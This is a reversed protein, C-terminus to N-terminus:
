FNYRYISAFERALKREKTKKVQRRIKEINKEIWEEAEYFFAFDREDRKFQPTHVYRRGNRHIVPHKIHLMEHYVVYELVYRPVRESDLSKSISITQHTSDHHGLIRYTTNPSWTLSPKPIGGAFYIQNLLDFIENLDYHFGVTGSLVKRGRNKRSELSKERIESKKTFEHFFQLANKSVKKRYLKKILIEALSQHLEWPASQLIDSIKVHIIEDKLFIKNSIGVYPYFEIKLKPLEHKNKFTLLCDQYIITLQELDISM